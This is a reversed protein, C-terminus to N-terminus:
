GLMFAKSQEIMTDSRKAKEWVTESIDQLEAMRRQTATLMWRPDFRRLQNNRNRENQEDRPIEGLDPMEEIIPVPSKLFKLRITNGNANPVVLRCFYNTQDNKFLKLYNELARIYPNEETDQQIRPLKLIKLSNRVKYYHALSQQLQADRLNLRRPDPQLDKRYIRAMWQMILFSLQKRVEENYLAFKGDVLTAHVKYLAELRTCDKEVKIKAYEKMWM